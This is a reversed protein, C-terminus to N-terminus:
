SNLILFGKWSHYLIVLSVTKRNLVTQQFQSFSDDYTKLAFDFDGYLLFHINGWEDNDLNEKEDKDAPANPSPLHKAPSQFSRQSFDTYHNGSHHSFPINESSIYRDTFNSREGLNSNLNGASASLTFLCIFFVLTKLSFRQAKIIYKGSNVM